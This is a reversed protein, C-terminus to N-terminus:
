RIGNTRCFGDIAEIVHPFDETVTDYLVDWEVEGYEHVIVNRLGRLEKWPIDNLAALIEDSLKKACEQEQEIEKAASNRDRRSLGLEEASNFQAVDEYAYEHHEVLELLLLADRSQGTM